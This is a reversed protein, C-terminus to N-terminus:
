WSLHLYFYISHFPTVYETRQRKSEPVPPDMFDDDSDDPETRKNLRPSCRAPANSKLDLKKKHLDSLCNILFYILVGLYYLHPMAYM